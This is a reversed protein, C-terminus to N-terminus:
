EGKSIFEIGDFTGNEVEELLIKHLIQGIEDYFEQNNTDINRPNDLIQYTFYMKANIDKNEFAVKGFVFIVDAFNGNLLRLATFDENPREVFEYRTTQQNLHLLDM